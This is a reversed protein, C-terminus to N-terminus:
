NLTNIKDFILATMVTIAQTARMASM